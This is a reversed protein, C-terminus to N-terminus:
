VTELCLTIGQGLGGVHLVPQLGALLLPVAPLLALLLELCQRARQVAQVVLVCLSRGGGLVPLLLTCRQAKRGIGQRSAIGLQWRIQFAAHLLQFVAALLLM